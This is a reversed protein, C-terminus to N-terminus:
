SSHLISTWNSFQMIVIRHTIPIRSSMPLIPRSASNAGCGACVSEYIVGKKDFAVPRQRRRQGGSVAFWFYTAYTIASADDKMVMVYFDDGDTTHQYADPTVYMGATSLSVGDGFLRLFDSGWGSVYV